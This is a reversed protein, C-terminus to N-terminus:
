GDWMREYRALRGDVFEMATALSPRPRLLIQRDPTEEQVYHSGDIRLVRVMGAIGTREERLVEGSGLIAELDTATLRAPSPQDLIAM